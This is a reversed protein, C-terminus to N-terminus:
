NPLTEIVYVTLAFDSLLKKAAKDPAFSFEITGDAQMYRGTEIQFAYLGAAGPITTALNGLAFVGAGGKVTVKLIENTADDAVTSAIIVAHNDKGTPTFIFKQATDATDETAAKATLVEFANLATLKTNTVTIDAM